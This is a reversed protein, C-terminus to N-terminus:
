KEVRHSQCVGPPISGLLCNEKLWLRLGYGIVHCGVPLCWNLNVLLYGPGSAEGNGANRGWHVQGPNYSCYWKSKWKRFNSSLVLHQVM